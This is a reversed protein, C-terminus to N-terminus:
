FNIYDAYMVLLFVVYALQFLAILGHSIFLECKKCNTAKLKLVFFIFLDILWFILLVIIHIVFENKSGYRDIAGHSWHAPITQPLFKWVIAIAVMCCIAVVINAIFLYLNINKSTKDSSANDSKPLPCISSTLSEANTKRPLANKKAKYVIALPDKCNLINNYFVQIWNIDNQKCFDSDIPIDHALQNRM